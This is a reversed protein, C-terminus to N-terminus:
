GVLHGTEAGLVWRNTNMMAWVQVPHSSAQVLETTSRMMNRVQVPRISAQVLETISKVM